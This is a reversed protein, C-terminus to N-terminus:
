SDVVARQADRVNLLDGTGRAGTYFGDAGDDVGAGVTKKGVATEISGAAILQNNRDFVSLLDQATVNYSEMKLPDILM